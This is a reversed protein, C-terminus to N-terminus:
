TSLRKPFVVHMWTNRIGSRNVETSLSRSEIDDVRPYLTTSMYGYLCQFAPILLHVKKQSNRLYWDSSTGYWRKYGYELVGSLV